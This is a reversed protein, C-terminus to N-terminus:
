KTVSATREIKVDLVKAAAGGTRPEAFTVTGLGEYHWATRRKDNFSGPLWSLWTWYSNEGVPPDVMNRVEGKTMGPQILTLRNGDIPQSAPSGSIPNPAARKSESCAAVGLLLSFALAVSL